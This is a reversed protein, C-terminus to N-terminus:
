GPGYLLGGYLQEEYQAPTLVMDAWDFAGEVEEADAEKRYQEALAKLANAEAPGDTQLDLLRIRKQVLVENVTIVMLASAAARKVSGGAISLFAEIAEDNFIPQQLDTDSILLRVKAADGTYDTIPIGM